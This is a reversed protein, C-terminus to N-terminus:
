TENKNYFKLLWARAYATTESPVLALKQTRGWALITSSLQPAFAHVFSSASHESRADDLESLLAIEIYAALKELQLETLNM